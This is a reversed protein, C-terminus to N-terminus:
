GHSTSLIEDSDVGLEVGIRCIGGLIIRIPPQCVIRFFLFSHHVIVEWETRPGAGANTAVDSIKLLRHNNRRNDLKEIAFNLWFELQLCLFSEIRVRSIQGHFHRTPPKSKM